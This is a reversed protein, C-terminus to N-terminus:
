ILGPRGIEGSEDTNWERKMGYPCANEELQLWYMGFEM